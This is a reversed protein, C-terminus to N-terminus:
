TLVHRLLAKCKSIHNSECFWALIKQKWQGAPFYKVAFLIKPVISEASSSLSTWPMVINCRFLRIKGKPGSPTEEWRFLWHVCNAISWIENFQKRVSTDSKLKKPTRFVSGFFLFESPIKQMEHFVQVVDIVDKLLILVAVLLQGEVIGFQGSWKDPGLEDRLRLEFSRNNEFSCDLNDFAKM